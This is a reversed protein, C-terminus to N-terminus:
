PPANKKETPFGDVMWRVLCRFFIPNVPLEITYYIAVKGLFCRFSPVLAPSKPSKPPSFRWGKITPPHLHWEVPHPNVASIYFSYIGMNTNEHSQCINMYMYWVFWRAMWTPLYVIWLYMSPIPIIKNTPQAFPLLFLCPKLSVELHLFLPIFEETQKLRQNCM